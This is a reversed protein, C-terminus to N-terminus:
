RKFESIIGFAEDLESPPHSNLFGRLGCAKREPRSLVYRLEQRQGETPM